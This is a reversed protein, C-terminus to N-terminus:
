ALGLFKMVSGSVQTWFDKKTYWSNVEEFGMTIEDTGELGVPGIFIVPINLWERHHAIYLDNMRDKAAQGESLNVMEVNTGPHEAIYTKLYEHAPTCADCTPDYFFVVSSGDEAPHTTNMLDYVESVTRNSGDEFFIVASAPTISLLMGTLILVAILIKQPSQMMKLM